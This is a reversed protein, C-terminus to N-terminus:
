IELSVANMHFLQICFFSWVFQFDRISTPLQLEGECLELLQQVDKWCSSRRKLYAEIMDNRQSESLDSLCVVIVFVVVSIRKIGQILEGAM